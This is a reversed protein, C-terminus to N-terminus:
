SLKLWYRSIDFGPGIVSKLTRATRLAEEHSKFRKAKQRHKTYSCLLKKEQNLCDEVFEGHRTVVWVEKLSLLPMNNREEETYLKGSLKVKSQNNTKKNTATQVKKVEKIAGDQKLTKNLKRAANAAVLPKDYVEKTLVICKDTKICGIYGSDTKATFFEKNEISPFWATFSM